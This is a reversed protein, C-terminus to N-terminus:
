DSETFQTNIPLESSADFTVHTNNKEVRRKKKKQQSSHTKTTLEMSDALIQKSLKITINESSIFYCHSSTHFRGILGDIEKKRRM